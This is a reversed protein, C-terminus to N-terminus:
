PDREREEDIHITFVRVCTYKIPIFQRVDLRHGYYYNYYQLVVPNRIQERM